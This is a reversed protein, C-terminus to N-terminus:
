KSVSATEEKNDNIGKLHRFAPEALFFQTCYDKIGNSKIVALSETSTHTFMLMVETPTKQEYKSALCSMLLEQGDNKFGDCLFGSSLVPYIYEWNKASIISFLLVAKQDMPVTNNQLFKILDIPAGDLEQLSVKEIEQQGMPNKEPKAKVLKTYKNALEKAKTDAAIIAENLRELKDKEQALTEKSAELTKEKQAQGEVSLDYHQQSSSITTAEQTRELILDPTLEKKDWKQAFDLKKEELKAKREVDHQKSSEIEATSSQIRATLNTISKEQEERQQLLKALSQGSNLLQDAVLKIKAANLAYQLKSVELKLNSITTTVEADRMIAGPIVSATLNQSLASTKSSNQALEAEATSLRESIAKIFLPIYDNLSKDYLCDPFVNEIPRRCFYSHIIAELKNSNNPAAINFIDAELIDSISSQLISLKNQNAWIEVIDIGLTKGIQVLSKDFSAGKGILIPIAKSFDIKDLNNALYHVLYELLSMKQPPDQLIFGAAKAQEPTITGAFDITEEDISELYELVPTGDKPAYSKYGSSYVYGDTTIGTIIREFTTNEDLRRLLEKKPGTLYNSIFSGFYGQSQQEGSSFSLM